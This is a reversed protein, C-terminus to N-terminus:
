KAEARPLTTGSSAASGINTVTFSSRNKKALEVKLLRVCDELSPKEGHEKWDLGCESCAVQIVKRRPQKAVRLRWKKRTRQEESLRVPDHRWWYINAFPRM